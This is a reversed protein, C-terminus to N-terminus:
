PRVELGNYEKHRMVVHQHYSGCVRWSSFFYVDQSFLEESGTCRHHAAIASTTFFEERQIPTEKRWVVALDCVSAISHQM